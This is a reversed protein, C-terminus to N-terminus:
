GKPLFDMVSKATLTVTRLALSSRAMLAAPNAVCASKERKM